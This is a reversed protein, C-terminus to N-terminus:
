KRGVKKEKEKENTKVILNKNSKEPIICNMKILPNINAKQQPM